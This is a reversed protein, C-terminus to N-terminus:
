LLKSVPRCDGSQSPVASSFLGPTPSTVSNGGFVSGSVNGGGFVSAGSNAATNVNGFTGMSGQAPKGFLGQAPQSSNNSFLGPVSPAKGFLGSSQGTSSAGSFAGASSQHQAAGSDRKLQEIVEIQFGDIM